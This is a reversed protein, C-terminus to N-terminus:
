DKKTLRNSINDKLRQFYSKSEKQQLLKKALKLATEQNPTRCIFRIDNPLRDEDVLCSFNFVEVPFYMAIDFQRKEWLANSWQLGNNRHDAFSFVINAFLVRIAQRRKEDKRNERWMTLFHVAVAGLLTTAAGSFYQLISPEFNFSFDM